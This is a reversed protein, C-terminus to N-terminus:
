EEEVRLAGSKGMKELLIFINQLFGSWFKHIEFFFHVKAAAFSNGVVEKCPLGVSPRRRQYALTPNCVYKLRKSFAQKQHNPVQSVEFKTRLFSYHYIGTTHNYVLM